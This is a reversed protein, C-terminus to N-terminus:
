NASRPCFLLRPGQLGDFLRKFLGIWGELRGRGDELGDGAEGLGEGASKHADSPARFRLWSVCTREGHAGDHLVACACHPGTGEQHAACSTLPRIEIWCSM